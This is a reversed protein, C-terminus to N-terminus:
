RQEIDFEFRKRSPKLKYLKVHSLKSDRLNVYDEIIKQQYEDFKCGFHISVIDKPKIKILYAVDKKDSAWHHIASFKNINYMHKNPDSYEVINKDDEENKIVQMLSSDHDYKKLLKLRDAWHIPIILRHEKEYIWDDGKTLFHNKLEKKMELENLKTKRIEHPRLNDYNVKIPKIEELGLKSPPLDSHSELINSKYGICIGKHENAYHAWMLLNRPTESLSIIGYQDMISNIQSKMITKILWEPANDPISLDFTNIDFASMMESELKENFTSEFPDNLTSPLSLRLCHDILERLGFFNTYKYLTNM